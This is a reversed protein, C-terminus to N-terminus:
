ATRIKQKATNPDDTYKPIDFPIVTRLLMLKIKTIRKIKNMNM